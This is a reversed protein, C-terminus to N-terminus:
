AKAAAPALNLAQLMSRVDEVFGGRNFYHALRDQANRAIRQAEHPNALAWACKDGLDKYDWRIPLYTENPIFLDPTTTMHGMDPKVLLCGCAVAEYDRLCLEGWGFPSLVMKCRRMELIYKRPGIRSVPTAKLTSRLPEIAAAAYARYQEYWAKNAQPPPTIRAHLDFPRNVLFDPILRNLRLFRRMGRSGGFSWGRHIKHLMSADPVSGFRWEGLNYGLTKACFDSVVFGGALDQLYSEKPSLMKSKLFLDVIPLVSFYPTSSQDFTDFYVLKFGDRKPRGEALVEKIEEPSPAWDSTVLAIDGRVNALQDRLDAMSEFVQTRSEVGLRRRLQGRNLEFGDFHSGTFGGTKNTLIDITIPRV